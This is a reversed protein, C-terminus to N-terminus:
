RKNQGQEVKAKSVAANTAARTNVAQANHEQRVATNEHAQEAAHFNNQQQMEHREAGIQEGREQRVEANEHNVIAQERGREANIHNRWGNYYSNAPSGYIAPQIYQVPAQLSSSIQGSLSNLENMVNISAAPNAAAMMGQSSIQSLESSFAAGQQPSLQGSNVYTGIQNSITQEETNLNNMIVMQQVQINNNNHAQASMPILCSGIVFTLATLKTSPKMITTRTFPGQGSISSFVCNAQNQKVPCFNLEEIRGM